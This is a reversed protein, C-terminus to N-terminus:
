SALSESSVIDPWLSAIVKKMEDGYDLPKNTRVVSNSPGRISTQSNPSIPLAIRRCPKLELHSYDIISHKFLLYLPFLAFTSLFPKIHHKQPTSLRWRVDISAKRDESFPDKTSPSDEEVEGESVLVNMGGHLESISLSLADQRCLNM